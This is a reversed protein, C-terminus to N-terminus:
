KDKLGIASKLAAIEDQQNAIQLQQEQIAKVLIPILQVYDVALITRDVTKKDNNKEGDPDAVPVTQVIEPFTQQLDEAMLGFHYGKPLNMKENKKDETLFRFSKPKLQM